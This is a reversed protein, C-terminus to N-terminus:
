ASTIAVAHALARMDDIVVEAGADALTRRKGPKDAYGVSPDRRTSRGHHRQALRGRARLGRARRRANPNDPQHSVPKAQAASSRPQHAGRGPRSHHRPRRPLDRGGGSLQQQRGGPARSADRWATIVETAHPTPTATRTADIENARLAHEVHRALDPSITAAYRLVDFPDKANAVPESVPAGDAAVLELLQRVVARAPHGAFIACIPGDFDLLLHRTRALLEALDTAPAATM